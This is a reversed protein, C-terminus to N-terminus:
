LPCTAYMIGHSCLLQTGSPVSTPSNASKSYKEVHCGAAMKFKVYNLIQDRWEPVLKGIHVLNWWFQNVCDTELRGYSSFICHATGLCRGNCHCHCWPTCTPFMTPHSCAVKMWIVGSMASNYRKWCKAIHLGDAMMYISKTLRSWGRLWRHPEDLQCCTIM